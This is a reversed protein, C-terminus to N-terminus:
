PRAEKSNLTAWREADGKNIFEAPEGDIAVPCATRRDIVSWLVAGDETTVKKIAYFGVLTRSSM